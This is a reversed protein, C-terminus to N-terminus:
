NIQYLERYSMLTQKTQNVRGRRVREVIYMHTEVLQRQYETMKM